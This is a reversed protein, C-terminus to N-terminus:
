DDNWDEGISYRPPQTLTVNDVLERLSVSQAPLAGTPADHTIHTAPVLAFAQEHCRQCVCDPPHPMRNMPTESMLSARVRRPKFSRMRALVDFMLKHAPNVKGAHYSM